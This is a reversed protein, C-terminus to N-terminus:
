GAKFGDDFGSLGGGSSDLADRMRRAADEARQVEENARKFNEAYQIQRGANLLQGRDLYGMLKDAFSLALKVLTAIFAVGSM